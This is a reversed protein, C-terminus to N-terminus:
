EGSLVHAAWAEVAARVTALTTGTSKGCVCVAEYTTPAVSEDRASPYPVIEMLYHDALKEKLQAEVDDATWSLAEFIQQELVGDRKGFRTEVTQMLLGLNEMIKEKTRGTQSM